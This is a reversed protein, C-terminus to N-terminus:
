TVNTRVRCLFTVHPCFGVGLVTLDSYSAVDTIQEDLIEISKLDCYQGIPFRQDGALDFILGLQKSDQDADPIQAYRQKM